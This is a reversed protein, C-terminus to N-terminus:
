NPPPNQTQKGPPERSGSPWVIDGIKAPAGSLSEGLRPLPSPPEGAKEPKAPNALRPSCRVSTGRLARAPGDDAVVRSPTSPPNDSLPSAAAIEPSGPAHMKKSKQPSTAEKRRKKSNKDRSPLQSAPSDSCPTLKVVHGLDSHCENVDCVVHVGEGM